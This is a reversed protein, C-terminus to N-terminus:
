CNGSPRLDKMRIASELSVFHFFNHVAVPGQPHEQHYSHIFRRLEFEPDFVEGIRVRSEMDDTFQYFDELFGNVIAMPTDAAFTTAVMTTGAIYWPLNRGSLFFESTNKGARRSYYVAITTSLVLYLIIITWDLAALNM